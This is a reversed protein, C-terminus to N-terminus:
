KYFRYKLSINMQSANFKRNKVLTLFSFAPIGSHRFFTIGADNTKGNTQGQCDPMPM